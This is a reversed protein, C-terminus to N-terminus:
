AVSEFNPSKSVSVIYTNYEDGRSEVVAVRRAAAESNISVEENIDGCCRIKIIRSIM